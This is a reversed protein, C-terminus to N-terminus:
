NKKKYMYILDQVGRVFNIAEGSFYIRIGKQKHILCQEIQSRRVTIVLLFAVKEM